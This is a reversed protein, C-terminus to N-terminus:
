VTLPVSSNSLKVIEAAIDDLYADNIPSLAASNNVQTIDFKVDIPDLTFISLPDDIFTSPLPLNMLNILNAAEGTVFQVDSLTSFPILEKPSSYKCSIVTSAPSCCSSSLDSDSVVSETTGCMEDSMNPSSLPSSNIYTPGDLFIHNEAKRGGKPRGRSGAPFHVDHAKKLHQHLSNPLAYKRSCGPM